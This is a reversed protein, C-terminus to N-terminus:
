LAWTDNAGDHVFFPGWSSSHPDSGDFNASSNRLTRQRAWALADDSRWVGLRMAVWRPDGYMEATVMTFGGDARRVVVGDELGYKNSADASANIQTFPPQWVLQVRPAATAAAATAAAATAAVVLTVPARM